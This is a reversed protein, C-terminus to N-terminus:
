RNKKKAAKQANRKKIRKARETLTYTKRVPVPTRPKETKILIPKSAAEKAKDLEKTISSLKSIEAMLEDHSKELHPDAIGPVGSYGATALKIGMKDLGNGLLSVVDKTDM